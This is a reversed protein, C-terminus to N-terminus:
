NRSRKGLRDFELSYDIEPEKIRDLFVIPKTNPKRERNPLYAPYQKFRDLGEPEDNFGHNQKWQIYFNKNKCGGCIFDGRPAGSFCRFKTGNRVDCYECDFYYLENM